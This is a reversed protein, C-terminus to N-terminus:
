VVNKNFHALTDKHRKFAIPELALVAGIAHFCSYYARNNAAKFKGSGLLINAADLDDKAREMKYNAVDLFNGTKNEGM